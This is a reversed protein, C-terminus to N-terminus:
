RLNDFGSLPEGNIAEHYDMDASADITETEVVKSLRSFIKELEPNNQACKYILGKEWAYEIGQNRLLLNKQQMGKYHIIKFAEWIQSKKLIDGQLVEKLTTQIVEQEFDKDYDTSIYEVSERNKNEILITFGFLCKRVVVEDDLNFKVLDLKM